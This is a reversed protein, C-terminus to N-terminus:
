IFEIFGSIIFIMVAAAIMFLSKINTKKPSVPVAIQAADSIIDDDLEGLIDFFVENNM